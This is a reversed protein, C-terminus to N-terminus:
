SIEGMCRINLIYQHLLSNLSENSVRELICYSNDFYTQIGQTQDVQQRYAFEKENNVRLTKMLAGFPKLRHRITQSVLNARNNPAKCLQAYVSKRGVMTVIAQHHDVVIVTFDLWQGVQKSADVHKSNESNRQHHPIQGCWYHVTLCKRSRLKQTRLNKDVRESKAKNAYEHLYVSKHNLPLQQEIQELSSQTRLYFVVKPGVWSQINRACRSRQARETAKVYSQGTRYGGDGRGLKDEHSIMCSIGGFDQDIQTYTQM